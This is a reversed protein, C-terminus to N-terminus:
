RHRQLIVDDNDYNHVVADPSSDIYVTRTM